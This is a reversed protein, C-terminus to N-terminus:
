ASAAASQCVRADEVLRGVSRSRAMYPFGHSLAMRADGKECGQGAFACRAQAGGFCSTPKNINNIIIISM